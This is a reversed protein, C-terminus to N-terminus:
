VVGAATAKAVLFDGFLIDSVEHFRPFGSAWVPRSFPGPALNRALVAHGVRTGDM